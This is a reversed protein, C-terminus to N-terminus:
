TGVYVLYYVGRWPPMIALSASGGSATAGSTVAHTHLTSVAGTSGTVTHVHATEANVTTSKLFSPDGFVGSKAFGTESTGTHTHTTPYSTRTFDHTHDGANNTSLTGAGHTHSANVTAAGGVANLTYTGNVGIPLRGSMDYTQVTGVLDGNAIHWTELASGGVIPRHGDSGGITGQWMVMMGLFYISGAALFDAAHYGDLTDANINLADHVAKTHRVGAVDHYQTHDDDLLGALQGHDGETASRLYQRVDTLGTIAGADDITYRYLEIQWVTAANQTMAPYAGATGQKYTVRVKNQGVGSGDLDLECIVSDKRTAGAGASAPALTEAAEMICIGGNVMICGTDVQLSNAGLVTVACENLAGKFVGRNAAGQAWKYKEIIRWEAATYPRGDGVQPGPDTTDTFYVSWTAM